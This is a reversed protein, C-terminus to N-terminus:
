KQAAVGLIVRFLEPHKNYLMVMNRPSSFSQVAMSIVETAGGSYVKGMYPNMFNGSVGIEGPKYFHLGSLDRVPYMPLKGKPTDLYGVANGPEKFGKTSLAKQNRWKIAFQNLWPRQREIYHGMEHFTTAKNGNLKMHGMGPNAWAREKKSLFVNTLGYINGPTIGKVNSFGKGGFVNFFEILQGEVEKRNDKGVFGINAVAKKAVRDNTNKKLLVQRVSSMLEEMRKDVKEIRNYTSTLRTDLAGRAKPNTSVNLDNHLKTLAQNLRNSEESLSRLQKSYKGLITDAVRNAGELSEKPPNPKPPPNAGGMIGMFKSTVLNVLRPLDRDINPNLKERCVWNTKICTTKCSKGKTCVDKENDNM